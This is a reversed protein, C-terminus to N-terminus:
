EGRKKGAIKIEFTKDIEKSWSQRNILKISDTGNKNIRFRLTRVGGGGVAADHNVEYDDGELNYVHADPGAVVEWRYGATPIEHLKIEVLDGTSVTVAKTNYTADIKHTM